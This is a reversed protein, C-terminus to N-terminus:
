AEVVAKKAQGFGNQQSRSEQRIEAGKVQVWVQALVLTEEGVSDPVGSHWVELQM